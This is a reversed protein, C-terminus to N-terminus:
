DVQDVPMVDIVGPAQLLAQAAHPTCEVFLMNFGTAPSVSRVEDSLNHTAIWQQLQERQAEANARLLQYREKRSHHTLEEPAPRKVKLLVNVFPPKVGNAAASDQAVKRNM